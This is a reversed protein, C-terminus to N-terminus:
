FYQTKRCILRPLYIPMFYCRAFSSSTFNEERSAVGFRQIYINAPPTQFSRFSVASEDRGNSTVLDTARYNAGTPVEFIAKSRSLAAIYGQTTLLPLSFPVPSCPFLSRSLSLSLSPSRLSFSFSLAYLSLDDSGRPLRLYWNRGHSVPKSPHSARARM